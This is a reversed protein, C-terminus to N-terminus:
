ALTGLFRRWFQSAHMSIKAPDAGILLPVSQSPIDYIM